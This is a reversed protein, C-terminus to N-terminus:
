EGQKKKLFKGAGWCVNAVCDAYIMKTIKFSNYKLKNLFVKYRFGTSSYRGQIDLDAYVMINTDELNPYIERLKNIFNDNAIFENQFSNEIEEIARKNLHITFVDEPVNFIKHKISAVEDEKILSDNWGSYSNGRSIEVNTPFIRLEFPVDYKEVTDNTSIPATAGSQNKYKGDYPKITEKDLDALVIQGISLGESVELCYDNANYLELTIEGEFGPAIWGANQIFLGSRGISSKGEIWAGMNNPISIKEKTTGLIFSHPKIIASGIANIYEPTDVGLKVVAKKSIPIKFSDGLTVDISAAQIQDDKAGVVVKNESVLETLKEYSYIM